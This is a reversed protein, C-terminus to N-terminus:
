KGCLRHWGNDSMVEDSDYAGCIDYDPPHDGLKRIASYDSGDPTGDRGYSVLLFTSGDSQYFFANGWADTTHASDKREPPMAQELTLPYRSHDRNYDLVYSHMAQSRAHNVIQRATLLRPRLVAGYAIGALIIIAIVGILIRNRM